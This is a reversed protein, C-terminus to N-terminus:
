QQDAKHDSILILEEVVAKSAVSRVEAMFTQLDPLDTGGEDPWHTGIRIASDFGAAKTLYTGYAEEIADFVQETTNLYEGAGLEKRPYLWTTAGMVDNLEWDVKPSDAHENHCSVCPGASAIDPFMGIAGVGDIQSFVAAQTQKVENFAVMQEPAFLNSKNIPADSGLYLSLRTPKSELQQAALRLFLAPLPGKEVGPEDWDEGFKLGNKLGPGVIRSTYIQRAAENIANAAVFVNEVDISRMNQDAMQNDPLPPPASVFLYIALCFIGGALILRFISM